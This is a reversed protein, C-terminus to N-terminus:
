GFPKQLFRFFQSSGCIYFAITITYISYAVEFLALFVLFSFLFHLPGHFFPLLNWSFDCVEFFLMFILYVTTQLSLLRNKIRLKFEYILSTSIDESTVGNQSYNDAARKERRAEEFLRTM